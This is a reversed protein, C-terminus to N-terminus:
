SERAAATQLPDIELVESAFEPIGFIKGRGDGDPAHVGGGWKFGGADVYGFAEKLSGFLSVTSKEPDICLVEGAYSPCCYIKGDM